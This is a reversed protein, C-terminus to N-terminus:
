AFHPISIHLFFIRNKNLFFADANKLNM